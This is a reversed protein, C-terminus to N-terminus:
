KGLLAKLKEFYERNSLSGSKVDLTKGSRMVVVVHVSESQRLDVNAIDDFSYLVTQGRASCFWRTRIEMTRNSVNFRFERVCITSIGIPLFISFLILSTILSIGVGLHVWHLLAFCAVGLITSALLALLYGTGSANSSSLSADDTTQKM